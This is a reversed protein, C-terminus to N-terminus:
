GKKCLVVKIDAIVNWFHRMAFELDDKPFGRFEKEIDYSVNEQIFDAHIPYHELGNHELYEKTFYVFTMESIARKHTPDQWCRVSSYYPAIITIKAGVKLIRYVENMFAILDSTHEIYHSCFIEEISNDEFPWPYKELDCIIDAQTGALAIDVGLFGEHKNNGCALDLRKIADEQSLALDGM